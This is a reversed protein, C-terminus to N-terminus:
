KRRENEEKMEYKEGKRGNKNRRDENVKWRKIRDNRRETMIEDTEVNEWARRSGIDGSRLFRM